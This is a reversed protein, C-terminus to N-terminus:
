LMNNLKAQIRIREQGEEETIRTCHKYWRRDIRYYTHFQDKQIEALQGVEWPDHVSGDSYKTCLVYDGVHVVRKLQIMELEYQKNLKHNRNWRVFRKVVNPYYCHIYAGCNFSGLQCSEDCDEMGQSWVYCACNSEAVYDKITDRVKDILKIRVM